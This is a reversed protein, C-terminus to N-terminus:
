PTEHEIPKIPTSRRHVLTQRLTEVCEPDGSDAMCKLCDGGRDLTEPKFPVNMEQGCIRCKSNASFLQLLNTITLLQKVRPTLNRLELGYHGRTMASVKLGVIAGLGSSDLYELDAFDLAIRGGRVILPQVVERLVTTSKGLLGGQCKVVTLKSDNEDRTEEIECHFPASPATSM